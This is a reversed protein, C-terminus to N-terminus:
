ACAAVDGTNVMHEATGDFAKRVATSLEADPVQEELAQHMCLLWQDRETAGIRYRHHRM